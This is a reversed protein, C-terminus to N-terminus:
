DYNLEGKSTLLYRRDFKDVIEVIYDDEAVEVDVSDTKLYLTMNHEKDLYLEGSSKLESFLRENGEFKLMLSSGDVTILGKYQIVRAQSDNM